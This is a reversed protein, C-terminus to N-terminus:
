SDLANTSRNSNNAAIIEAFFQTEKKLSDIRTETLRFGHGEGPYETYSHKIGKEKLLKVVERSVEPPVVKDDEGQFLILPSNLNEIQFVPSRTVFRSTSNKSLEPDFKEGVLRDTYKSEFKHTFNSLTILNGIGYYCAGGAFSEPFKTLARLVAYGGASSGRIFICDKDVWNKEILSKVGYFIDDADFEGWNGSLSQRYTRGYGTSGRHDVDLIAYGLSCYYQKLGSLETSARSTPGGHIMVMLPPATQEPACYNANYPTYFYGFASHGCSTPFQILKPNSIGNQYQDQPNSKLTRLKGSEINLNMIEASRDSYKAVFVLGNEDFRALQCCASFGRHLVTTDATSLDVEVLQDGQQTTVVAIVIQNDFGQWRRQGFVWHAEGFEGELHTVQTIKGDYYQCMNWYDCQPGDRVFLLKDEDVYGIQCVSHNPESIVTSIKGVVLADGETEFEGQILESNDWPMNPHSWQVWAIYKGNASCVPNAYFDAGQALISLKQLLKDAGQNKLQNSKIPIVVICNQNEGEDTALEAVAIVYCGDHSLVLDAFGRFNGLSTNELLKIPKSNKQLTQRYLCGDDFNNFIISNGSICFCKGGYEHVRTRINFEQPTICIPQSESNNSMLANRGKEASLTEIWFLKDGLMFPYNPQPAENILTELKYSSQWLGYPARKQKSQNINM